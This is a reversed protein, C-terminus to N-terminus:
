LFFFFFSDVSLNHVKSLQLIIVTGIFRLNTIQFFPDDKLFCNFFFLGLKPCHHFILPAIYVHRLKLSKFTSFISFIRFDFSLSTSIPVRVNFFFLLEFYFFRFAFFRFIFFRFDFFFFSFFFLQFIGAIKENWATAQDYTMNLYKMAYSGGIEGTRDCGCECHLYIVTPLSGTLFFM